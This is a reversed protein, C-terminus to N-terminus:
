LAGRRKGERILLLLFAPGGLMATVVGVPLEEQFLQFSVRTLLDALVVFAAGLLGSAPLTLRADAGFLLRALHPVLLGVFGLLGSLSVVAAVMLSSALLLWRRAPGVDVGLSRADDDGLALLNLKPAHALLVASGLAVLVAAVAIAQPSEATLKGALWFLVGSLADPAVLAKIFTIVALAFSNFVIGALLPAHRPDGGTLRAIALVLATAGAAGALSFLSVAGFGLVSTVGGVGLALGITGGLAAGGSVGLMFPDALPNRTLRQLMSGSMALAFGVVAALVVRPLRAATLILHENTGPTLAEKFSLPEEGWLLGAVLATALSLACWMLVRLLRGLSFIASPM